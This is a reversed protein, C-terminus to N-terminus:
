AEVTAIPAGTTVEDNEEVLHEVIVGAVPSPVDVEVKATEVRLLPTDVAVTEGPQVYWETIVVEDSIDGLKPMNVTQQM